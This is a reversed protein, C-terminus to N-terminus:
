ALCTGCFSAVDVPQLEPGAAVARVLDAMYGEPHGVGYRRVVGVFEEVDHARMAFVPSGMKDFRPVGFEDRAHGCHYLEHEILACFEADTCQSCHFAGVTIVFDPMTKFWEFLQQEQRGKQWAGCRFAPVEAQGLVRRGQRVYGTSAWVFGIEADRLHLHEENFLPSETDLFTKRMWADLEPAPVFSHGLLQGVLSDPPM